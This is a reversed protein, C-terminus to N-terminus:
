RFLLQNQLQNITQKLKMPDLHSNMQIAKDFLINLNDEKYIRNSVIVDLLRDKLQEYPDTYFKKKKPPIIVESSVSNYPDDLNLEKDNVASINDLFEYSNM